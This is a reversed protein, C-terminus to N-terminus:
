CHKEAATRPEQPRWRFITKETVVADVRRDHEEVPIDGALMEEFCLAMTFCSDKTMSLYKDYYGAGHGIRNCKRDCAVCPLIIIDIEEPPVVPTEAKPEPIGYAGPILDDFSTIQRAEMTGAAGSRHGEEDLDTCLPLCVRKGSELLRSIVALTSPENGVSYYVLITKEKKGLGLFGARKAEKMEQINLANLAIAASAENRYEESLAKTKELAQRRYEKKAAKIDDM